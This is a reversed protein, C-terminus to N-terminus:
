PVLSFTLGASASLHFDFTFEPCHQMEHATFWLYLAQAHLPVFALSPFPYVVVQNANNRVVIKGDASLQPRLAPSSIPYTAVATTPSAFGAFLKTATSGGIRGKRVVLGADDITPARM